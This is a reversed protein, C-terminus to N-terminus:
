KEPERPIAEGSIKALKGEVFDTELSDPNQSPVIM